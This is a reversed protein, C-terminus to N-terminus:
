FLGDDVQVCGTEESFVDHVAAECELEVDASSGSGVNAAFFAREEVAQFALVGEGAVLWGEGDSVAEFLLGVTTLLTSVRAETGGM